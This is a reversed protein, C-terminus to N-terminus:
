PQIWGAFTTQGGEIKIMAVPKIPDRDPGMTIVGSVGQYNKTAAIQDRIATRDLSGARKAAEAFIYLADYGLASNADPNKGSRRRIEAVFRQVAPRPEGVYYHDSFYCGELAKGGITIVTPSDWGDGGVMPVTIGLDRGQIAIQGVDTYFGPIFVAQPAASVAPRSRRV